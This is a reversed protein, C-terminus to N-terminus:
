LSGAFFSIMGFMMWLLVLNKIKRATERSHDRVLMVSSATFGSDAVVVFPVFWLSVLGLFIPLFSLLVASLFFGSAVYAAAKEGQSVAVTSIKKTEDGEVDVIGKTVERGTNSFFALAAFLVPKLGLNQGIVFSGYIFPIAVCSSVLFNGPLGTRKGKTAYAISVILSVAAVFLSLINTLVAAAFGIAILVFAFACSEEPKVLGSPIPRDPENVKDIERDYYDNIAMSAASFTLGTVFGLLLKFGIDVSLPEALVLSAGVIVALGMMLGNVPRMLRVFGVIRNM